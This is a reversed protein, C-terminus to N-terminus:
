CIDQADPVELVNTDRIYDLIGKVAEHLSRGPGGEYWSKGPAPQKVKAREM